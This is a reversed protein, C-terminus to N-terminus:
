APAEPTVARRLAARGDGLVLPGHSVLVHEAGLSQLPALVARLAPHGGARAIWSEPCMSLRGDGDRVMVDGFALASQAPLWVGIEDDRLVNFAQLGGPLEEGDDVLHDLRRSPAGASPQRAWVESDYRHSAAEISREHWWCTRVIAACGGAAQVVADLGDWDEVLPDILVAGAPTRVLWWAVEPEWDDGQEWAPHVAQWRWLGPLIIIPDVAGENTSMSM